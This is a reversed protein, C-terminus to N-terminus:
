FHKKCIFEAIAEQRTSKKAFHILVEPKCSPEALVEQVAATDLAELSAEAAERIEDEDDGLLIIFLQVLATRPLPLAGRAAATRVHAPARGEIIQQVLADFPTPESM